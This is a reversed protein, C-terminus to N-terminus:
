KEGGEALQIAARLKRLTEDQRENDFYGRARFGVYLDCERLAELLAEHSNVARVIFHADIENEVTAITPRGYASSGNHITWFDPGNDQFGRAVKWPTSTTM